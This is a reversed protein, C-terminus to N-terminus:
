AWTFAHTSTTLRLPMHTDANLSHSHTNVGSKWMEAGIVPGNLNCPQYLLNLLPMFCNSSFGWCSSQKNKITEATQIHTKEHQQKETHSCKNKDVELHKPRTQSSDLHNNNCGDGPIRFLDKPGCCNHATVGISGWCQGCRLGSDLCVKESIPDAGPAYVTSVAQLHNLAWIYQSCILVLM